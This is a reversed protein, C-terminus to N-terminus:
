REYLRESAQIYQFPRQDLWQAYQTLKGLVPVILEACKDLVDVALDVDLRGKFTIGATGHNGHNGEEYYRFGVQGMTRMSVVDDQIEAPQDGKGDQKSEIERAWGAAPIPRERGLIKLAALCLLTEGFNGPYGEFIKKVEPDALLKEGEIFWFPHGTEDFLERVSVMGGTNEPTTGGVLVTRSFGAKYLSLAIRKLISVQEGVPFHVTGRFPQTAGAMVTYVPPFVLGDAKRAVLLSLATAWHAHMGMPIFAGHGSVPGFPIFVLNGGENLYFEVERSTMEEMRRTFWRDAKGTQSPVKPTDPEQAGFASSLTLATGLGLTSSIFKRRQIKM